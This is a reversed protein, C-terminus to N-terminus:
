DSTLIIGNAKIMKRLNLIAYRMRGLATNIGVGTEKCIEQYSMRRYIRMTLVERQDHDLGDLLGILDEHIQEKIIRTEIDLDNDGLISLICFDDTNEFIALKKMRRFYDMTLNHAIQMVWPLFKGHENYSGKKITRIVKVFTDQFIDDTVEKDRVKSYIYGYIRHNHRDILVELAKDEGNIYREVLTSDKLNKRM